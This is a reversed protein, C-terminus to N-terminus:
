NIGVSVQKGIFEVVVPCLNNLACDVGTDFTHIQWIDAFICCVGHVCKHGLKWLMTERHNAQVGTVYIGFTILCLNGVDRLFQCGVAIKGNSFGPEVVMPVESEFFLLVVCQSLLDTQRFLM